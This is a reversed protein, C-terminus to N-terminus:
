LAATITGVLTILTSGLLDYTVILAVAVASVILVYETMTQGSKFDAAQRKLNMILKM